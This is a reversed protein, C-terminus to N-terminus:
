PSKSTLGTFKTRGIYCLGQPSCEAAQFFRLIGTSRHPMFEKLIGDISKGGMGTFEPVKAQLTTEFLYFYYQTL